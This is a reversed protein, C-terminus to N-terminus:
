KAWIKNAIYKIRHTNTNYLLVNLWKKPIKWFQFLDVKRNQTSKHSIIKKWQNVPANEEVYSLALQLNSLFRLILLLAAAIVELQQVPFVESSIKFYATYQRSVIKLQLVCNEM